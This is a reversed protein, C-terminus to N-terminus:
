CTATRRCVGLNCTNKVFESVEPRLSLGMVFHFYARWLEGELGRLHHIYESSKFYVSSGSEDISIAFERGIKSGHGLHIHIFPLHREVFIGDKKSIDLNPRVVITFDKRMLDICEGVDLIKCNFQRAVM